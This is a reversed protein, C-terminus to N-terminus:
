QGALAGLALTKLARILSTEDPPVGEPAARARDAYLLGICSGKIQLPLVIFSCADPLLARHWEPLLPVIKSNAADAIMLDANNEMALHFLDGGSELPFVFGASRQQHQEGVAVRARFSASAPDKLCLAAYRFGMSDCLTQLIAPIILGPKNRGSAASRTIQQVGSLLLDRAHYPKGSPYRGAGATAPAMAAEELLSSLGAMAGAPPLYPRMDLGALMNGVEHRVSVILRRLSGLDLQLATGYFQLLRAMHAGDAPQQRAILRGLEVSFSVVQRLWLARNATSKCPEAPLAEVSSIIAEPMHWEKLIAIAMSEYSCGLVITEAQAQTVKGSAALEAINEYLRHEHSAVVLTGLNRFLAGIAAEESAQFSTKRDLERAILSAYLSVELEFRVSHAHPTNALTELLLVSMAATKVGNFGVVGIARRVTTIPTGSAKRFAQSNALRLIKQCLATDSMVYHALDIAGEDDLDVLQVVQMIVAGLSLLRDDVSISKVLKRSRARPETQGSTQAAQM